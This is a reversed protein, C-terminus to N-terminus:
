RRPPPQPCRRRPMPTPPAPVPRPHPSVTGNRTHYYSLVPFRGGQRFRAARRLTEESVAAPVIVAPPYTPCVAFDQNVDSLRWQTTQPLHSPPLPSQRGGGGLWTYLVLGTM